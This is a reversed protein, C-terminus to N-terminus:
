KVESMIKLGINQKDPSLIRSRPKSNNRVGFSFKDFEVLLQKKLRNVNVVPILGITIAHNRLEATNYDDLERAYAERDLTKYKGLGVGGFLADLTSPESETQEDRGNIQELQSLKTIKNKNNTAM